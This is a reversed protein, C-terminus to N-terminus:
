YINFGFKERSNMDGKLKCTLTNRNTVYIKYKNKVGYKRSWLSERYPCIEKEEHNNKYSVM